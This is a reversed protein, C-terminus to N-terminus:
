ESFDPIPNYIPNYDLMLSCYNEPKKSFDKSKYNIHEAEELLIKFNRWFTAGHGYNDDSLHAMEHIFVFKLLHKNHLKENGTLKERLCIAFKKGKYEVYSTDHPGTPKNEFLVEPNYRMLMNETMRRKLPDANKNWLYKRRMHALLEIGFLNLEGIRKSAEEADRHELTEYCRGDVRNCSTITQKNTILLIVLIIIILIIFCIVFM